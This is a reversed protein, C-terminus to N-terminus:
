AIKKLWLSSFPNSDQEGIVVGPLLRRLGAEDHFRWHPLSLQVQFAHNFALFAQALMAETWYRPWVTGFVWHDAPYPVNYPFPVDHIQVVVGANLQPLVELYLYPVDGDIRVVHSSDIFLVDNPGLSQFLSIDVDQV